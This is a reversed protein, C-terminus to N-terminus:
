LRFRSKTVPPTPGRAAGVVDVILCPATRNASRNRADIQAIAPTSPTLPNAAGGLGLSPCSLSSPRLPLVALSKEGRGNRRGGSGTGTSPRDRFIESDLLRALPMAGCAM